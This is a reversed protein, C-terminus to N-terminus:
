LHQIYRHIFIGLFLGVAIELIGDNDTDGAAIAGPQLISTAGIVQESSAGGEYDVLFVTGSNNIVFIEADGDGDSDALAFSRIFNDFCAFEKKQYGEQGPTFELIYIANREDGTFILEETGNGDLDASKLGTEGAKAGFDSFQWISNVQQAWLNTAICLALLTVFMKM